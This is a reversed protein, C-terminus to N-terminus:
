FWAVHMRRLFEETIPFGSKDGIVKAIGCKPCLATGEGEDLWATIESPAFIQCCDFCGCLKSEMIETRHRMSHAHAERIDAPMAQVRKRHEDEWHM